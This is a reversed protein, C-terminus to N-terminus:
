LEDPIVLRTIKDTLHETGATVVAEPQPDFVGLLELVRRIKTQHTGDWLVVAKIEGLLKRLDNVETVLEAVRESGPKSAEIAAVDGVLVLTVAPAYHTWRDRIQHATAMDLRHNFAITITDGSDAKVATLIGTMAHSDIAAQAVAEWDRRESDALDKGWDEAMSGDFRKSWEEHAAQGPTVTAAQPPLGLAARNGAVIGSLQQRTIGSVPQPEPGSMDAENVPIM